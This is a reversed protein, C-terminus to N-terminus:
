NKKLISLNGKINLKLVKENKNKTKISFERLFKRKDNAISLCNFFLLPYEELLNINGECKFNNNSILFKKVYNMRGYALDIQIKFENILNRSFKKSKFNIQNKSNIKKIFNKLKILKNM